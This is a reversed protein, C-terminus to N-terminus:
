RWGRSTNRCYGSQLIRGVPVLKRNPLLFFMRSLGYKRGSISKKKYSRTQWSGSPREQRSSPFVVVTHGDVNFKGKLRSPLKRNKAGLVEYVRNAIYHGSSQSCLDRPLPEAM